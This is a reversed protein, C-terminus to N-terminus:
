VFTEGAEFKTRIAEISLPVAMQYHPRDKFTKWDGGWEIGPVVGISAITDYLPSEQLYNGNEFIGVDWAIGFNHNSQGGRANTIKPPANGFRGRKFLGNQEMYSRTGSIIRVDIGASRVATLFKRALEQAKPHLTRCNRESREDFAGLLSAIDNCQTFFTTEARDTASDFSGNIDGGYCGASRLLRQLFGVDDAFLTSSM